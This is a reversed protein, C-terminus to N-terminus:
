MGPIALKQIVHWIASSIVGSVASESIRRSFAKVKDLFGVEKQKEKFIKEVSKKFQDELFKIQDPPLSKLETEAQKIKKDIEPSDLENLLNRILDERGQSASIEYYNGELNIMKGVDGFIKIDRVKAERFDINVPIKGTSKIITIQQVPNEIRKEIKGLKKLILAHEKSAKKEPLYELLKQEFAKDFAVLINGALEELIEDKSANVTLESRFSSSIIKKLEVGWDSNQENIKDILDLLTRITYSPLKNQLLIEITPQSSFFEKVQEGNLYVIGSENGYKDFNLYEAKIGETKCGAKSMGWVKAGTLTAKTLDVSNFNANRLDANRLNAEGLIAGMLNSAELSTRELKAKWLSADWLNAVALNAGILDAESLNVAVLDAKWFSTKKCNAHQLDALILNAMKLNAGRLDASVLDAERLDAGGLNAGILNIKGGKDRRLILKKYKERDQIHEWCFNSKFLAEKLCGVHRCKAM